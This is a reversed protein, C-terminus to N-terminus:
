LRGRGPFGGATSSSYIFVPAGENSISHPRFRRVVRPFGSTQCTSFRLFCISRMAYARLDQLLMLLPSIILCFGDKQLLAVGAGGHQLLRLLRAVEILPAVVGFNRVHLALLPHTAEDSHGAEHILPLVLPLHVVLVDLDQGDKSSHMFYFHQRM